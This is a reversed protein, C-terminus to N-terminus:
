KELVSVHSMRMYVALYIMDVAYKFLVSLIEQALMEESGFKKASMHYAPINENKARELAMSDRNNSIVVVVKANIKNNKCGDMIAQLDSGGHSAFVAINM